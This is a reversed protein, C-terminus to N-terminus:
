LPPRRRRCRTSSRTCSSSRSQPTLAVLAGPFERVVACDRVSQWVDEAGGERDRAFWLTYSDFTKTAVQLPYGEKSAPLRQFRVITPYPIWVEEAAAADPEPEGSDARDGGTGDTGAAATAAAAPRDRAQVPDPSFFLHHPTLHLTGTLKLKTHPPERTTRGLVVGDIKAVRLGDM